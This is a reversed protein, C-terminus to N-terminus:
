RLLRELRLGYILRYSKLINEIVVIGKKSKSKFEVLSHVYPSILNGLSSSMQRDINFFLDEAKKKAAATKVIVLLDVDSLAREKKKQVSGFLAVSLIDAKLPSKKVALSIKDLLQQILGEESVFLPRIVDSVVLRDENLSFLYMRGASRMSVIGEALFDQLIEHATKATVGVMKAVQRGSLAEQRRCLVRLVRVKAESSLIKNLPENIRM